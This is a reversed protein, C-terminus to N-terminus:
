IREGGCVHMIFNAFLDDDCVNVAAGDEVAIVHSIQKKSGMCLALYEELDSDIDFGHKGLFTIIKTLNGGHISTAYYGDVYKFGCGKADKKIEPFAPFSAVILNDGCYRAERRREVAVRLENRWRKENLSAIFDEKPINPYNNQFDPRRSLRRLAAVVAHGQRTTLTRGMGLQDEISYLFDVTDPELSRGKMLIEHLYEEIHKMSCTHVM